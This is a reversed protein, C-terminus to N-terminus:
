GAENIIKKFRHSAQYHAIVVDSIEKEDNPNGVIAVYGWPLSGVEAGRVGRLIVDRLAVQGWVEQAREPNLFSDICEQGWCKLLVAAGQTANVFISGSIVKSSHRDDWKENVRVALDKNFVDLWQPKQVFVADADVWFLPRKLQQLKKMLFFPKYSCNREWSGLSSIPEVHHDLSWKQCSAILNQVELQYLTDKTYYSVILPFERM